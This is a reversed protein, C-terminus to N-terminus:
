TATGAGSWSPSPLHSSGRGPLTGPPCAAVVMVVVVVLPEAGVVKKGSATAPGNKSMQHPGWTHPPVRTHLSARCQLPPAGASAQHDPALGKAGGRM